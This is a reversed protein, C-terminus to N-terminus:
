SSGSTQRDFIPEGSTGIIPWDDDRFAMLFRGSLHPKGYIDHPYGWTRQIPFKWPSCGMTRFPHHIHHSKPTARHRFPLRWIHVVYIISTNVIILLGYKHIKMNTGCKWIQKLCTWSFMLNGSWWRKSWRSMNTWVRSGLLELALTLRELTRAFPRLHFTFLDAFFQLFVTDSITTKTYINVYIYIYTPIYQIINYYYIM